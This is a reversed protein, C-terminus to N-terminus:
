TDMVWEDVWCMQVMLKSCLCVQFRVVKASEKM